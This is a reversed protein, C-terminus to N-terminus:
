FRWPILLLLPTLLAADALIRLALTSLSEDPTARRLARGRDRDLAFLLMASALSATAIRLEGPNQVHALFMVALSAAAISLAMGSIRFTPKEPGEWAHIAVCNLWCLAAFLPTLALLPAHASPSASWAPVACACAFLLGVAIERPFRIRALPPVHVAVFYLMALTFLFTDESRAAAPMRTILWLLPVSAASAAILLARRHRAHFFHRERLNECAAGPRADLLRDAIYILWTGIGLVAIASASAHVQAARAFSWAWLVAVTPADLSLLHWYIPVIAFPSRHRASVQPFSAVLDV